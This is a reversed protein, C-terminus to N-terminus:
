HPISKVLKIIDAAEKQILRDTYGLSSHAKNLDNKIKLRLKEAGPHHKDVAKKLELQKATDGKKEADKFADQLKIIKDAIAHWKAVISDLDVNVAKDKSEKANKMIVMSKDITIEYNRSGRSLQADEKVMIDKASKKRERYDFVDMKVTSAKKQDKGGAAQQEIMASTKSGVVGDVKLKNKKQFERVAKDTAPGFQGDAKLKPSPKMAKNLGNQLKKVNSGTSGLRLVAM